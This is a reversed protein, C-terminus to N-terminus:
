SRPESGEIIKGIAIDNTTDGIEIGKVIKGISIDDIIITIWCINGM